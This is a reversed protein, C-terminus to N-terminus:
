KIRVKRTIKKMHERYELIRDKEEYLYQLFREANEDFSEALDKVYVPKHDNYFELFSEDIPNETEFEKLYDDLLSDIAKEVNEKM